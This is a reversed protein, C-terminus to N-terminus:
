RVEGTSAGKAEDVLRLAEKLLVKRAWASIKTRDGPEVTLAVAQNLLEREEQKLNIVVQTNM